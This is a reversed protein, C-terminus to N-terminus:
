EWPFTLAYVEDNTSCNNIQTIYTDYLDRINNIYSLMTDKASVTDKDSDYQNILFLQEQLPYENLIKNTMENKVSLIYISKLDELSVVPLEGVPFAFTNDSSNYVSDVIPKITYSTVNVYIYGEPIEPEDLGYHEILETVKNDSNSVKAYIRPKSTDVTLFDTPEPL